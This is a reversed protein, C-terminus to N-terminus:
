IFTKYAVCCKIFFYCTKKEEFYLQVSGSLTGLMSTSVKDVSVVFLNLNDYISVRFNFIETYSVDAMEIKILNDQDNDKRQFVEVFLSLEFLM